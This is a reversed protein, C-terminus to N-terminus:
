RWWSRIVIKAFNLGYLWNKGKKSKGYKRKM